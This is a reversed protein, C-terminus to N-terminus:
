EDGGEDQTEKDAPSAKKGDTKAAPDGASKDAADSPSAEGASKISLVGKVYDDDLGLSAATERFEAVDSLIKQWDEGVNAAEVQPSSLGAKVRLAASEADDKPNISRAVPGQWAAALLEDRRAEFAQVTILDDFYGAILGALIVEEFIPQCFSEGFWDQVSEMEPWCDNDASRESSFSAGKYDGTVTTPKVGPIAAGAGRLMHKIFSEANTTPQNPSFGELAGDQGLNIMMGPQMKTIRNGDSDTLDEGSAGELGLKNQGRALRYGMVVCAAVASAKLTNYQLDGTDRFALLTPAFWPVGRLQDVDDSAYLHIIKEADLRTVNASYSVDVSATPASVHYAVRRGDADLEIGRYFFNGKGVDKGNVSLRDGAILQLCLKIPSSKVERVVPRCLVDGSLITSRLALKQLDCISLGGKGPFGRVDLRNAVRHWLAKARERFELWPKGDPTTALSQPNLGRGVVKTELTRVIKRAYPNNRYLNWSEARLQDIQQAPVQNENMQVRAFNKTLRNYKGADYGSGSNSVAAMQELTARAQVRGLARAPSFVGVVRDFFSGIM